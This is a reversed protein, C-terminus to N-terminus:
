VSDGPESTSQSETAYWGRPMYFAEHQFCLDRILFLLGPLLNPQWIGAM